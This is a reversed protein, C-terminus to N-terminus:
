FTSQEHLPRRKASIIREAQEIGELLWRRGLYLAARHGRMQKYDGRRVRAILLV